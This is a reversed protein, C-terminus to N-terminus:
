PLCGFRQGLMVFDRYLVYANQRSPNAAPDAPRPVPRRTLLTITACWQRNSAAVAAHAQWIALAAGGAVLAFLLGVVAAGLRPTLRVPPRGAVAV